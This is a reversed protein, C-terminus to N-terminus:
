KKWCHAPFEERMEPSVGQDLTEKPVWVQARNVCGCVQCNKLQGDHPTAREKIVDFMLGAINTCGFCGVADVNYPCAACIAARRDAEEPEVLTPNNLLWHKVVKLFNVVDMVGLQRKEVSPPEQEVCVPDGWGQQKCVDEGIQEEFNPGLTIGNAVRYGRVRKVLENWSKAKITTGTSEHTYVWGNKPVVDRRLLRLM